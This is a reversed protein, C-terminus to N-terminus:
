SCDMRQPPHALSADGLNKELKALESPLSHTDCGSSVLPAPILCLCSSRPPMNFKIITLIPRVHKLPFHFM